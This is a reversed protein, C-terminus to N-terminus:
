RVAPNPAIKQLKREMLLLCLVFAVSTTARAASPLSIATVPVLLGALMILGGLLLWFSRTKFFV